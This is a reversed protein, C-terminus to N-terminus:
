DKGWDACSQTPNNNPLLSFGSPGLLSCFGAPTGLVDFAGQLSGGRGATGGGTGQHANSMRNHTSEWSLKARLPPRNINELTLRHTLLSINTKGHFESSFSYCIILTIRKPSWFFLGNKSKQLAMNTQKENM